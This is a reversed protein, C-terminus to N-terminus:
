RARRSCGRRPTPASRTCPPGGRRAACCAARERADGPQPALRRQHVRDLRERVHRHDGLAARLPPLRLAHVVPGPSFNKATEPWTSFGSTYQTGIPVVARSSISSAPPTLSPRSSSANWGPPADDFKRPGPRARRGARSRGARSPPSSAPSPRPRPSRRPCRGARRPWSRGASRGSRTTRSTRATGRPISSPACSGSRAARTPRRAGLVHVVPDDLELLRHAQGRDAAEPWTARPGAILTSPRFRPPVAARGCGRGARGGSWVVGVAVIRRVHGRALPALEEGDLRDRLRQGAEPGLPARGDLRDREVLRETADGGLRDRRRVRQGAERARRDVAERDAGGVGVAGGLPERAVQVEGALHPHPPRGLDLHAGPVATAIAVPAGSGGPASATRLISCVWAAVGSNSSTSRGTVGPSPITRASSSAAGPSSSTGAPGGNRACSRPISAAAPIASIGTCARGWTAITEVPSSSTGAALTRREFDALDAVGGGGSQGREDALGAALRAEGADHRVVALREGSREACGEVEFPTQGKESPPRPNTVAHSTSTTEAPEDTPARSSVAAAM